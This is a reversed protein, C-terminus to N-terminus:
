TCEESGRLQRATGISMWIGVLALLLGPIWIAWRLASSTADVDLQDSLTVGAFGLGTLLQALGLKRNLPNKADVRGTLRVIGLMALGGVVVLTAVFVGTIIASITQGM